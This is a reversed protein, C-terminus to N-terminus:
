GKIQNIINRVEEASLNEETKILFIEDKPSKTKLSIIFNDDDKYEHVLVQSAQKEDSAM